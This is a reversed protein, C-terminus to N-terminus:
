IDMNSELLTLIEKNYSNIAVELSSRRLFIKPRSLSSRIANLYSEENLELKHLMNEFSDDINNDFYKKM